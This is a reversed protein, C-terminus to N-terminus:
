VELDEANVASACRPRKCSKAGQQQDSAAADADAQQVHRKSNGGSSVSSGRRFSWRRRGGVAATADMQRQQGSDPGSTGSSDAFPSNGAHDSATPTSSNSGSRGGFPWRRSGSGGGSAVTPSNREHGVGGSSSSLFKPLSLSRLAHGGARPQPAKLTDASTVDSAGLPSDQATSSSVAGGHQETADPRSDKM